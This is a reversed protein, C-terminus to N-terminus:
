TVKLTYLALALTAAAILAVLVFKAIPHIEGGYRAEYRLRRRFRIWRRRTWDVTMLGAGVM